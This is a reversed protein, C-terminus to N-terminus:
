GSPLPQADTWVREFSRVSNAFVGREDRRQLHLVPSDVAPNGWLHTNLLLDDDFRLISAYLTTGTQRVAEPKIRRLPAAYSAALRCRGAMGEGIGEDEGRLRVAESNPDGLCVRVEVGEATKATLGDAFGNVSDWLWLAAYALVDIHGKSATLLSSITAPSVEARTTYLGVLESTGDMPGSASPWFMASPVALTATVKARHTPHPLTGNMIWRHATKPDVGVREAFDQVSYGRQRIADALRQNRVGNRYLLPPVNQHM